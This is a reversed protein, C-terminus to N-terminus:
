DPRDTKRCSVCALRDAGTQRAAAPDAAAARWQLTGSGASLDNAPSWRRSEDTHALTQARSAAGVPATPRGVRRHSAAAAVAAWFCGASRRIPESSRLTSARWSRPAAGAPRRNPTSKNAKGPESKRARGALWRGVLALSNLKCFLYGFRATIQGPCGGGAAPGKEIQARRGRTTTSQLSHAAALSTFLSHASLPRSRASHRRRAPRGLREGGGDPAAPPWHHQGVKLRPRGLGHARQAAGLQNPGARARARWRARRASDSQCHNFLM